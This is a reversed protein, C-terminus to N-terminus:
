AKELSVPFQLEESIQAPFRDGTPTRRNTSPDVDFTEQEYQVSLKKHHVRFRYTGDVAVPKFKGDSTVFDAYGGMTERLVLADEEVAIHVMFITGAFPDPQTNTSSIVRAYGVVQGSSLRETLEYRIVRVTNLTGEAVFGGKENPLYRTGRALTTLDFSFGSASEALNSYVADEEYAAAIRGGDVQTTVPPAGLAKGIVHDKLFEVIEKRDSAKM